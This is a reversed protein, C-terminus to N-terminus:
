EFLGGAANSLQPLREPALEGQRWWSQTGYDRQARREARRWATTADPDLFNQIQDAVIRDFGLRAYWASSFFPTNYRVLNALDRGPRQPSGELARRYANTAPKLLDSGFGIVPGALTEGIGGGVRSTEANFFDGFIGLGGGQFLAAAWFKREDMPRPDRGKALEKLQVALAGMLTLGAIMKTAYMTRALPTPQQMFRRYQRLSLSVAFSKYMVMSRQLEGLFTGPAAGTVFMTRGEISVSPIAIEVQEEILAQLRTALADAEAEPMADSAAQRWYNPSIFTAGKGADFAFRPDRILDWDAESIGRNSLLDRLPADLDAFARGANDALHGAFEMRFATRGMDTWYNLGTARLTFDSIRDTIESSWTDAFYRGSRMGSQALSDAIYGMRAATERTAHSAMLQVHRSLVNNPKMGVAEAASRITVTDTVSSLVASGLQISTLAGRTAGFFNAWFTNVPINASGDVHALMAGARHTASKVQQTLKQAAKIAAPDGAAATMAAAARKQATQAAFALGMKPNPGLVRMMAVDQALGHLGRMMADFPHAGGFEANYELWADGDRFHLERPEARQNYLAKGGPAFSPDRRSWGGSVIGDFVSDLFADAEPGSPAKGPQHLFPKGTKRNLIRSWDLKDRINAKWAEKGMKQLKGADHSHPLGYDAIEGIDGGHANFRRRMHSQADRVADALEEARLDGTKQGHLERVLNVLRAENRSRGTVTKGTETLVERLRANVQSIYADALSAVSEGTYGSGESWEILNRIALDPRDASEVIDRIRRMAQLQNLVAHRRSRASKATATKIDAAAMAAAQHAPHVAAYRDYLQQFEGQVQRGRAKDLAGQDVARQICDFMTAM